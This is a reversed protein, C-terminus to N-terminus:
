HATQATELLLPIAHLEHSIEETSGLRWQLNETRWGLHEAVAKVIGSVNIVPHRQFVQPLGYTLNCALCKGPRRRLEFALEARTPSLSRCVLGIDYAGEEGGGFLADFFEETREAPFLGDLFSQDLRPM